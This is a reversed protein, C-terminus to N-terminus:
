FRNGRIRQSDVRKIQDIVTKAIQDPNSESKVNISVSYNNYMVSNNKSDSIKPSSSGSISAEYRPASFETPSLKASNIMQMFGEGYKKVADQRMVFEGPTLLTRVKDYNATGPVKRNMTLRGGNAFKPIAGGSNFPTGISQGYLVPGGSNSAVEVSVTIKPKFDRIKANIKNILSNGFRTGSTEGSTAFDEPLDKLVADRVRQDEPIEGITEALIDMSEAGAEAGANVTETFKGGEGYAEEIDGDGMAAITALMTNYSEEGELFAGRLANGIMTRLKENEINDDLNALFTSVGAMGQVAGVAMDNWVKAFGTDWEAATESPIARFRELLFEDVGMGQIEAQERIFPTIEGEFIEKISSPMIEWFQGMTGEFDTVANEGLGLIVDQIPGEVQGKVTDSLGAWWEPIDAMDEPFKEAGYSKLIPSIQTELATVAAPAMKSFVQGITGINVDVNAALTNFFGSATSTMQEFLGPLNTQLHEFFGPITKLFTPVNVGLDSFLGAINGSIVGESNREINEMAFAYADMMNMAGTNYAAMPDGETRIRLMDNYRAEAAESNIRTQEILSKAAAIEGEFVTTQNRQPQYNEPRDGERVTAGDAVKKELETLAAQADQERRQAAVMAGEVQMTGINPSLVAGEQIAALEGSPADGIASGITKGKYADLIAQREDDSSGGGSPDPTPQPGQIADEIDEVSGQQKVNVFLDVEKDEFNNWYATINEVVDLADQMAQQFRDSNVNALDIENKITEWETRTRGLVTLNEILVAQERDLLEIQRQAPELRQEEINFVEIQLDKIKQELQERTLGMNGVLNSIGQERALDLNDRREKMSAEAAAQSAERVARAAAAIDGQSLADAVDLQAKKNKNIKENAKEVEDLAETRKDYTKNIEDEQRSIRELDAELDDVGGVRNRIDSILEEGEQIADLFPQKDLDFGLTIEQEQASFAEMAKSFGDQFIEVLGDFTLRKIRLELNQENSANKLTERLTKPDVSPNMILTQLDKDSLIASKQAESLSQANQEIFKVVGRLDGGEANKTALSQASAFARSLETAQKTLKITQRIVNNDQERAVAAAFAADKVAEYAMASSLGAATLKRFAVLQENIGGLVRQQESQFDGLAISRFAKGMNQLATTAGIINGTGDFQFLENKRREYDEPDMGIIMSILDEGAGLRRMQQEIGEFIKIEGGDNFLRDLANRSEVWGQTMEITSQRIEKLRRLLDDLDSAKPGGGGSGSAEEEVEVDEFTADVSSLQSTVKDGMSEAYLRQWKALSHRGPFPGNVQGEDGTWKKFDDSAILEAQDMELIMSVTKVYQEKDTEPLMDFYLEDFAEANQLKPNIEYAQNTTIVGMDARNFIEELKESVEENESVYRLIVDTDFVADQKQIERVFDLIEQAEQENGASSIKVFIDAALSEDDVLSLIQGAEDAFVGGFTGFINLLADKQAGDEGIFTLLSNLAQPSIAGTALELNIMDKDAEEFTKLLAEIGPMVLKADADDQFRTEIAASVGARAAEAGPGSIVGKMKERLAMEQESM